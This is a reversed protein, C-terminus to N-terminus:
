TSGFAASHWRAFPSASEASQDFSNWPWLFHNRLCYNGYSIAFVAFVIVVGLNFRLWQVSMLQVTWCSKHNTQRIKIGFFCESIIQQGAPPELELHCISISESAGNTSNRFAQQKHQEATLKICLKLARLDPSAHVYSRTHRSVARIVPDFLLALPQFLSM